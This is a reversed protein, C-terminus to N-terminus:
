DGASKGGWCISVGGKRRITRGYDLVLNIVDDPISRNQQRHRAHDTRPIM